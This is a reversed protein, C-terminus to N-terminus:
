RAISVASPALARLLAPEVARGLVDAGGGSPAMGQRLAWRVQSRLTNMLSQDLRLRHDHEAMLRAAEDLPVHLQAALVAQARSPEEAVVQEARRLARLLAQLAPERTRDALVRRAAVVNFHQTYVLPVPLDLAEERLARRADGAIPEWIAVADVDRRLLGAVLRDPAMHLVRVEEPAVGQHLLWSHLFYEASSGRVTGVRRGTMQAATQLEASRRAVLKIQRSSSGISGIIAGDGGGLCHLAVAFDAATAVDVDGARLRELCERGSDCRMRRVSLGEQEFLRLSEAVYVLLSVPGHAVGLGLELARAPSAAAFLLAVVV